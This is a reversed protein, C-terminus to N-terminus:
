GPDGPEVRVRVPAERRASRTALVAALDSVLETSREWPTVLLARVPRSQEPDLVGEPAPGTPVPGRVTTPVRLAGVVGAVAAREGEVAVLHAAPPLGVATRDALVREALGAPDWRVFAGSLPGPVDGVLVAVGGESAPRVLAAAGLWHRLAAEDADLGPRAATVQADLLVAAAFGGDVLPEAGPTSVVLSRAQPVSALVGHDATSRRLPVGPFARGLEEATREAGVAVSRLGTHGCEPCRWAGALAGCWACTPVAHSSALRLPGGCTACRAVSRCGACAVVPLYGARPVQVLVPGHELGDRITRWAASPLRAAAAAGERALEVRDLHVQRPAAGRVEAREAVVAHAWGQAIWRQAAVSRVYGGVLLAAGREARMALVERANPYPARPEDHLPDGDDWCVALGLDAVPAFAAARTGVVVDAAGRAVALFSRYRAAPGDDAVLRVWGRAGPHWAPVGARELADVVLAVEAGSPVVVLAGRGGRRAAVVAEAIQDTWPQATWPLAQWVARPAEGGSVRRLFAAGGVHRYWSSRVGDAGPVATPAEDDPGPWQEAEVRAHRPPVALRLVDALTGAWRRAVARALELVQPTVVVEGSVVRRLPTLTGEHDSADVREVVWGDVDQGAFRVKVRVGPRVQESAAAPVLYDFLRDLHPQPRDVAVRAVPLEQAAEFAVRRRRRSRPMGPLAPQDPQEADEAEDWWSGGMRSRGDV